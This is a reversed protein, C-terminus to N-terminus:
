PRLRRELVNELISVVLPEVESAIQRRATEFRVRIDEAAQRQQERIEARVQRLLGRAEQKGADERQESELFAERKLGTEEAKLRSILESLEKEQASIDRQVQKLLASRAEMTERLPQFMVRRIVFLFILFSVLQVLLTGNISVLESQTVIEM